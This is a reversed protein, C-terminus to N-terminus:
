RSQAFWIATVMVYAFRHELDDRITGIIIIRGLNGPLRQGPDLLVSNGPIPRVLPAYFMVDVGTPKM